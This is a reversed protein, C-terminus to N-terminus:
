NDKIPREEEAERWITHLNASAPHVGTAGPGRPKNMNANRGSLVALAGAPNTSNAKRAAAISADNNKHWETHRAIEQKASAILDPFGAITEPTYQELRISGTSGAESINQLFLELDTLYTSYRLLQGKPDSGSNAIRSDKIRECIATLAQPPPLGQEGRTIEYQSFDLLKQPSIRSDTFLLLNAQMELYDAPSNIDLRSKQALSRNAMLLDITDSRIAYGVGANLNALDETIHHQGTFRDLYGYSHLNIGLVAASMTQRDPDVIRGPGQTPYELGARWSIRNIADKININQAQLSALAKLHPPMDGLLVPQGEKPQFVPTEPALPNNLLEVIQSGSQNKLKTPIPAQDASM